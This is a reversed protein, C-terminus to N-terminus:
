RQLCPFSIQCCQLSPCFTRRAVLFAVPCTVRLARIVPFAAVTAVFMMVVFTLTVLIMVAFIMAAFIMSALFTTAFCVCGLSLSFTLSYNLSM